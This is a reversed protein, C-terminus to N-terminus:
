LPHMLQSFGPRAGQRAYFRLGDHNDTRTDIHMTAAGRARAWDAAAAYLRAGLGAGRAGDAVVLTLLEAHEGVPELVPRVLGQRDLMTVFALGDWGDPGRHVFLEAVGARLLPEAKARWGRYAADEDRPVFGPPVEIASHHRHLAVRLDRAEDLRNVPLTEIM